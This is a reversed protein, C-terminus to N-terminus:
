LFTLIKNVYKKNICLNDTDNKFFIILIKGPKGPMSQKISEYVIYIFIHYDRM